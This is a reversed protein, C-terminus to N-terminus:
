ENRYQRAQSLMLRNWGASWPTDSEGIRFFCYLSVAGFAMAIGTNCFGFDPGSYYGFYPHSLQGGFLMIMIQRNLMSAGLAAHAAFGWLYGRSTGLKWIAALVVPFVIYAFSSWAVGTAFHHHAALRLACLYSLVPFFVTAGPLASDLFRVTSQSSSRVGTQVAAVSVMIRYYEDLCWVGRYICPGFRCIPADSFELSARRAGVTIM